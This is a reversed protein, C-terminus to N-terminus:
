PLQGLPDQRRLSGRFQRKAVPEAGSPLLRLPGPGPSAALPEYAIALPFDRQEFADLLEQRPRDGPAIFAPGYDFFAQAQADVLVNGARMDEDYTLTYNIFDPQREGIQIRDRIVLRNTVTLTYRSDLGTDDAFYLRQLDRNAGLAVRQGAALRLGGLEFGSSKAVRRQTRSYGTAPTSSDFEYASTEDTLAITLRPITTPGSAVFTLEPGSANPVLYLDLSQNTSLSLGELNATYGPGAIQLIAPSVQGAASGTLAIALTQGLRDAGLHYSAPVDRGLGGKFPVLEATGQDSLSALAAGAEGPDFATVTLQGEGVLSIDLGPPAAAATVDCFPCTFPGTEAVTGPNQGPNQGPSQGPSQGSNEAAAPPQRWSRQTLDLTHSAADGALVPGTAAPQYRWTDLQTDFEVHPTTPGAARGAPYNSDYVYVWYQGNGRNEVRYPTLTHGQSLVGEVLRYLGLTFPNGLGGGASSVIGRAIARLIQTPTYTQRVTQTPQFVESVGQMLFLNAIFTQLEFLTRALGFVTRGLLFNVLQQWWPLRPPVPQWLELVAAAMGEAIGQDMRSLQTRLWSQAATTLVCTASAGGVCVQTGFLQQLQETLVTEWAQANRNLDIAQTLERNSFQFGNVAPDFNPLGVTGSPLGDAQALWTTDTAGGPATTQALAAYPAIQVVVLATAMALLWWRRWRDLLPM